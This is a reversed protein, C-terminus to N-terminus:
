GDEGSRYEKVTYTVIPEGSPGYVVYRLAFSVDKNVCATSFSTEGDEKSVVKITKCTVGAVTDTGTITTTVPPPDYAQLSTKSTGFVTQLSQKVDEKTLDVTWESGVDLSHGQVSAAAVRLPAFSFPIPGGGKHLIALFVRRSDNQVTMSEGTELNTVKITVQEGNVSLVRWEGAIKRSGFHGVIRYYEGETYPNSVSASDGGGAETPADTTTAGGDSTAPAATTTATPQATAMSTATPAATTEPAMTTAEPAMTTTGVATPSGVVTTAEDAATATTATSQTTPGDAGDATTGDPPATTTDGSTATPTDDAPESATDGAAGDDPSDDGTGDNMGACGAFVVALCVFLTAIARANM